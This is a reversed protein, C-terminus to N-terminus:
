TRENSAGSNNSLEKIRQCYEESFKALETKTVRHAQHIVLPSQYNMKCHAAMQELPRLFSELSYCDYGDNQYSRRKHGTSVVAMCPKGQLNRDQNKNGFAFGRTLVMEQWQKLLAPVNYWYLPFQFIILKAETLLKQEAEVNIHFDPYKEYLDNIVVHELKSVSDILYKNAHSRQPYPHAFVILTM